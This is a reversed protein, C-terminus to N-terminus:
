SDDVPISGIDNTGRWGEGLGSGSVLSVSMKTETPPCSHWCGVPIGSVKVERVRALFPGKPAQLVFFFLRRRTMPDRAARNGM